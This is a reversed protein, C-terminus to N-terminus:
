TKNAGGRATAGVPPGDGLFCLPSATHQLKRAVKRLPNTPGVLWTSRPSSPHFSFTRLRPAPGTHTGHPLELNTIM